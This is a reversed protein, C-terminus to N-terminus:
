REDIVLIPPTSLGIPLIPILPALHCAYRYHCTETPYVRRPSTRPMMAVATHHDIGQVLRRRLRGPATQGRQHANLPFERRSGPAVDRVVGEYALEFARM